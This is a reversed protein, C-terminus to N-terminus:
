PQLNEHLKFDVIGHSVGDRPLFLDLGARALFLQRQDFCVIGRPPIKIFIQRSGGEGTTAAGAGDNRGRNRLRLPFCDLPLPRSSQKTAERKAIVVSRAASPPPRVALTSLHPGTEGIISAALHVISAGLGFSDGKPIVAICGCGIVETICHDTEIVANATAAHATANVTQVHRLCRLASRTFIPTLTKRTSVSFSFCILAARSHASLRM